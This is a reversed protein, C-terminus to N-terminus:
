RYLAKITGWTTAETAVENCNTCTGNPNFFFQGGTATKDAFNCDTTIITPVIPDNVVELKGCSIAQAFWIYNLTMAVIAGNLCTGYGVSAGTYPGGLVAYPSTNGAQFLTSTDVIKWRSATAGPTFKHVVYVSIPAFATTLALTCNTGAMDSYVGIHDAFAVNAALVVGLALLLVKKM